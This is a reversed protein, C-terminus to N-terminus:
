QGQRFEILLLGTYYFWGDMWGDHGSLWHQPNLGLPELPVVRAVAMGGGGGGGEERKTTISLSM